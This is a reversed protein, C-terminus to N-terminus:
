RCYYFFMMNILKIIKFLYQLIFSKGTSRLSVFEQKNPFNVPEPLNELKLLRSTYIAQSHM